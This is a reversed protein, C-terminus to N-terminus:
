AEEKVEIHYNIAIQPDATAGVSHYECRLYLGIPVAGPAFAQCDMHVDSFLYKKKVYEKVVVNQGYGLVDDKDIICFSAWDGFVGDKVMFDAGWIYKQEYSEGDYNELKFDLTATAGKSMSTRAPTWVPSTSRRPSPTAPIATCVPARIAALAPGPSVQHLAMTGM